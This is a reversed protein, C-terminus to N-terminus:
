KELIKRRYEEIIDGYERLIFERTIREGKPHNIGPCFADEKVYIEMKRGNKIFVFPYLRCALPRHSYIKCRKTEPDLFVCADDFPRKKIAYGLFKDGRYFLKEYDVFEWANYGLEEIKAVDEDRLPIELEYCCRGCNEICKFKFSPDAEVEFTELDITAVWKM